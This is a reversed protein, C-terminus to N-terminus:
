GTSAIRTAFVRPVGGVHWLRDPVTTLDLRALTGLLRSIDQDATLDELTTMVHEDLIDVFPAGILRRIFSNLEHAKVPLLPKGSQARYRESISEMLSHTLYADDLLGVLGYHDPIIDEIRLFYNETADLVAQVDSLMESRAASEEISLMLAPAHEVYDTVFAVVEDLDLESVSVNNLRALNTIARRLVGSQKEINKGDEIKARIEEIRM